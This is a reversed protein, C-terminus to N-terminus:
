LPRVSGLIQQATSPTLENTTGTDAVIGLVLTSGSPGTFAFAHVTYTTTTCGPKSPRWTGTVQIAKGTMGKATLAKPPSPTADTSSSYGSKAASMGISRAAEALDTTPSPSVFSVTRYASGPCYSDGDSATATGAIRYTSTAAVTWTDPVDYAVGYSLAAVTRFGPVVPAPAKVGSTRPASSRTSSASSAQDSSSGRNAAFVVAGVIALVVVVGAALLGILLGKNGGGPPPPYGGQYPYQPQGPYGYPQGAYGAQGVYEGQGAFQPQGAGQPQGYGGPAFQGQGQYNAQGGPYEAAHPYGSQAQQGQGGYLVTEPAGPQAVGHGGYQVTGPTGPPAVGHGGTQGQGGYLVTEPAGTRAADRGGFQSAGHGGPQGQGPESPQMPRQRTQDQVGSPDHGPSGPQHPDQGGPQNPGPPQPNNQGAAQQQDPTEPQALGHDASQGPGDAQAPHQEGPRKEGPQPAANWWQDDTM